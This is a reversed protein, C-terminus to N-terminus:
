ARLPKDAPGVWERWLTVVAAMLVPGIFLGVIGLTQVGGAIGILVWLFPLRVANGILYPQV